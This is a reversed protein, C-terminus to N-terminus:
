TPAQIPGEPSTPVPPDPSPVATPTRRGWTLDEPRRFGTLQRLLAVARYRGSMRRLLVLYQRFGDETHVMPDRRNGRSAVHHVGEPLTGRAKRPM